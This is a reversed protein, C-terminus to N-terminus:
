YAMDRVDGKKVSWERGDIIGSADRTAEFKSVTFTQKEPDVGADLVDRKVKASIFTGNGLDVKISGYVPDFTYEGPAVTGYKVVEKYVPTGFVNAHQAIIKLDLAMIRIKQYNSKVGLPYKGMGSKTPTITIPPLWSRLRM